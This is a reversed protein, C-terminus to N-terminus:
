LVKEEWVWNENMQSPMEIFDRPIPDSGPYNTEICIKNIVHGFEHFFIKVNEHSLYTTGSEEKPFNTLM